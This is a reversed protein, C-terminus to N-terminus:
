FMNFKDPDFARLTRRIRALLAVKTSPELLSLPLSVEHM